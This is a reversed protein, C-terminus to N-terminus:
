RQTGRRRTQCGSPTRHRPPMVSHWRRANRLCCGSTSEHDRIKAEWPLCRLTPSGAYGGVAPRFWSPMAQSHVRLRLRDGSRMGGAGIRSRQSNLTLTVANVCSM